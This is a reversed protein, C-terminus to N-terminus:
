GWSEGMVGDELHLCSHHSANRWGDVVVMVLKSTYCTPFISLPTWFKISKPCLDLVLSLTILTTHLM